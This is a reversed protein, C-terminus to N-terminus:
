DKRKTFDTLRLPTPPGAESHRYAGDRRAGPDGAARM